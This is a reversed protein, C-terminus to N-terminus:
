RGGECDENGGKTEEEKGGNMMRGTEIEIVIVCIQFMDFTDISPLHISNEFRPESSDFEHHWFQTIPPFFYCVLIHTHTAMKPASISDLMRWSKERWKKRKAKKLGIRIAKEWITYVREM